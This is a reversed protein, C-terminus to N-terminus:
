AADVTDNSSDSDLARYTGGNAAGDNKDHYKELSLLGASEGDSSAEDASSSEDIITKPRQQMMQHYKTRAVKTAGIMLLVMLWLPTSYYWPAADIPAPIAM